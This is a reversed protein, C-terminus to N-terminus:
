AKYIKSHIIIDIFSNGYLCHERLTADRFYNNNSLTSYLHPRLDFAYVYLKHMKLEKFAVTEILSLFVSWLEIFREKELETKMIFSIEANKDVWNIHVLGGYGVCLNGELLTFLIQSPNTQSFSKEVVNEFYEDQVEKTLPKNQRLHYMQQNRWEMIDYRDQLRLPVISFNNEKYVNNKLCSYLRM